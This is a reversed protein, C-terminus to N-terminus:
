LFSVVERFIGEEHAQVVWAVGAQLIIDTGVTDDFTERSQDQREGNKTGCCRHKEDRDNVAQELAFIDSTTEETEGGEADCAGLHANRARMMVIWSRRRWAREAPARALMASIRQRLFTDGREGGAHEDLGHGLVDACTEDNGNTMSEDAGRHLLLAVIAIDMMSCAHHLPTEQQANRASIDAGAQTFSWIAFWTRLSFAVPVGKISPRDRHFYHVRCLSSQLPSFYDLLLACM